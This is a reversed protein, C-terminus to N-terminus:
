MGEEVPTLDDALLGRAEQHVKTAAEADPADVLCWV